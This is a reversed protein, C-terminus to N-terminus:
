ELSVVKIEYGKIQDENAPIAYTGEFLRIHGRKIKPASTTTFYATRSEIVEEKKNKWIIDVQLKKISLNGTNKAELTLRQYVKNAQTPTITSGRQRFEVDYNAPRGGAWTHNIVPSPEYIQAAEETDLKIISVRISEIEPAKSQKEYNLFMFPIVDNPRYSITNKRITKDTDNFLVSGNKDLAEVNLTLAEVSANKPFIYAELKYSYSDQYDNLDSSEIQFELNKNEPFIVPIGPVSNDNIINDRAAPQTEEVSKLVEPEEKNSLLFITVITASAIVLFLLLIVVQKKSNVLPQRKLQSIIEYANTYTSEIDLCTRAHNIANERDEKRKTKIYQKVFTNALEAHVELSYPDLKAAKEFHKIADETNDYKMFARGANLEKTIEEQYEKWEDETFGMEFAINKLEQKNFIDSKKSNKTDIITKIFKELQDQPIAM